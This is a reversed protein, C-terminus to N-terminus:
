SKKYLLKFIEQQFTALRKNKILYGVENKYDVFAYKDAYSIWMCDQELHKVDIHKIELNFRIGKRLDIPKDTLVHSWLDKGDRGKRFAELSKKGLDTEDTKTTFSYYDGREGLTKIVDTFLWVIDEKSDLIKIEQSDVALSRLILADEDLMQKALSIRAELKEASTTKYLTRKGVIITEVLGEHIMQELLTYLKPRHLKTKKALHIVNMGVNGLLAKYVAEEDKSNFISM